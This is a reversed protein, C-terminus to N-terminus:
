LRGNRQTAALRYVGEPDLEFVANYTRGRDANDFFRLRPTPGPETVRNGNEDVYFALWDAPNGMGLEFAQQLLDIRNALGAAANIEGTQLQALIGAMTTLPTSPLTAAALAYGTIRGDDGVTPAWRAEVQQRAFGPEDIFVAPADVRERLPGDGALAANATLDPLFNETEVTTVAGLSADLTWSAETGSQWVLDFPGAPRPQAFLYASLPTGLVPREVLLMYFRGQDDSRVLASSLGPRLESYSRATGPPAFDDLLIQSQIRNGANPEQWFLVPLTEGAPTRPMALAAWPAESLAAYSVPVWILSQEQATRRILAQAREPTFELNTLNALGSTALTQFREVWEESSAPLPTATATPTPTLTPAPTNTITPTLSPTPSLTPSPTPTLSPTPTATPILVAARRAGLTAEYRQATSRQGTTLGIIFALAAVLLASGLASILLITQNPKQM